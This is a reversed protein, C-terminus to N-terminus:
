YAKEEGRIANYVTQFVIKIDLFISWNELYFIDYKVRNIIDTEDEVEGRYGSVQALGTIGPKVFHRVMFKDVREAYMHTHSVMHPRPGVVSMEGKLVNIFQPLEDISTRRIIRGVRTVREDGKRIQELDALPNPKMSRFKYCYFEKYDLGNRKQKFFVPGKSELKIILGLIPTLWSLIGVIVFLSLIIDFSRKVFKNFPEDMPIRRLSLIPLVGYYQLDLQKSYIEKTDPLFKLVKLNNDVFAILQNIQHNSMEAVSIYIEDIGENMVYEMVEELSHKQKKLDFVKQLQYGYVPQGEFFKRLQQTKQNLGIIVVKRINGSALRYRKLLYYIAFKCVSIGTMVWLVYKLILPTSPEPTKYIGFFAFVILAFLVAQKVLSSMISPVLTFRYIEYFGSRISLAVWAITIFVVYNFFPFTPPFLYYAVLHILLLDVGYSIPRLLGSYRGSRFM